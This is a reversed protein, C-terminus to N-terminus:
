SNRPTRRGDENLKREADIRQARNQARTRQRNPMTLTTKMRVPSTAVQVPATPKSLAPFQLRSGPLTTYTCGSPSTRIVTGGPLQDDRWGGDGGSLESYTTNRCLCKLNSAQTPGTPWPITHDIDTTDAARDCGPFRCTVDRCCVFDALARSPTYRPEPPANGPHVLRRVTATLSLKALTPSPLVPGGIM